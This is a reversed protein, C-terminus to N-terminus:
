AGVDGRSDMSYDNMCGLLAEYVPRINGECLVRDPSGQACVGVAVCVQSMATAADRRAETQSEAKQVVKCAAQLGPLIKQLKGRIMFPPLSGLALACGCRTLVEPSMLASLYQSVLQDQMEVNAVGPEVQYYQRCLAALASLASDQIGRRAGSSFLHLNKLSDDILWQWGTIVPDDKFPMKSLSLKEILGCVAPRMLEGGFGRYQKRDSLKQHINKLGEITDSSLFDTVWSCAFLHM